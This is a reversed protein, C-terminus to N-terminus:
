FYYTEEMSGYNRGKLKLSFWMSMGVEKRVASKEIDGTENVRIYMKEREVFESYQM